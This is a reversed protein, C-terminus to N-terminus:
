FTVKPTVKLTHRSAPGVTSWSGMRLLVRPDAWYLQYSDISWSCFLFAWFNLFVGWCLFSVGRFVKESVGGGRFECFVGFNAIGDPGYLACFGGLGSIRFFVFFFFYLIGWGQIPGGFICFIEWFICFHGSFSWKTNKRYNKRIKLACGLTPSKTKKRTKKANGAKPPGTRARRFQLGFNPSPGFVTESLVSPKM